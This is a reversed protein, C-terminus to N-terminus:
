EKKQIPFLYKERVKRITGTGDDIFIRYDYIDKHELVELIVVKKRLQRLNEYESDVFPAYLAWDDLKFKRVKM